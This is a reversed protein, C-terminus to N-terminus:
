EGKFFERTRETICSEFIEIIHTHATELWDDPSAISIEEPDNRFYDIDLKFAICDPDAASTSNLQVQMLDQGNEFSFMVSMRSPGHDPLEEAMEPYFKFYDGLEVVGTEDFPIEVHNIYRLGIRDLAEQPRVLQHQNAKELIFSKFTDWGPYPEFHLVSFIHPTVQLMASNDHKMFQIRETLELIQQGEQTSTPSLQRISRHEPFEDKIHQYFLGPFTVDWAIGAPFRFECVAEQLPPNPYQEIM